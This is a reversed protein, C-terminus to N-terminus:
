ELKKKPKCSFIKVQDQLKTVPTSADQDSQLYILKGQLTSNQQAVNANEDLLKRENDRLAGLMTSMQTQRSLERRKTLITLSYCLKYASFSNFLAPEDLLHIKDAFDRRLLTKWLYNSSLLQNVYKCTRRMNLIDMVSLLATTELFLDTPLSFLACTNWCNKRKNCIAAQRNERAVATKNQYPKGRSNAKGFYKEPECQFGDQRWRTLNRRCSACLYVEECSIEVRFCKEVDANLENTVGFWRSSSRTNCVCCKRSAMKLTATKKLHSELKGRRKGRLLAGTGKHTRM